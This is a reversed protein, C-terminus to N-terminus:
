TGNTDPWMRATTRMWCPHSALVSLGSCLRHNDGSRTTQMIFYITCNRTYRIALIYNASYEINRLTRVVYRFVFCLRLETYYKINRPTCVVNGVVM